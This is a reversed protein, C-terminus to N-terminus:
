LDVLYGWARGPGLPGSYITVISGAQITLGPGVPVMSSATGVSWNGAAALVDVDDVRLFAQMGTASGGLATIALAKGPPVEFPIGSRVVVMDRPDPIGAIRVVGPSTTALYGWACGYWGGPTVVEVTSGEGATLWHPLEAVTTNNGYPLRVVASCEDVGDIRLTAESNDHTAGLGTLVLLNGAPVIFPAGEKITVMTRPDPIGAVHVLGRHGTPISAVLQHSQSSGAAALVLAATGACLLLTFRINVM